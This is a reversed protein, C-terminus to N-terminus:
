GAVNARREPVGFERRCIEALRAVGERIVEETPNAFCLRFSRRGAAADACWEAGPNIAVGEALAVQALRSTDVQEPMRVWIFIGGDPMRYEATAGFQADLAEAMVECKRRLAASLAECHADFAGPAYRALVMQEVAGTGADSKLPAIRRLVEWDAVLFGVRLAPAISKSYSGCYIVRGPEALARIARPRPGSFVLDAYCDDEFITVDHARALDLIERRRAEPMITGTPNQVTPILYLYKPRRGEASLRELTEALRAPVMGHDDTEVGVPEAGRGRIRTLAGGYTAMETIVVDGPALLAANVLDLAQLSGSVILVEDPDCAMGTRRRLADATFERLGKHGLPGGHGNYMALGAGEAAMAEAAARTLAEVPLAAADNHGGVFNFPPNGTWRPMPPPLGERFRPTAAADQPM